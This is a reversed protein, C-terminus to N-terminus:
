RRPFYLLFVTIFRIIPPLLSNSFIANTVPAFLPMPNSVARWSAALPMVTNSARAVFLATEFGGLRQFFFAEVNLKKLQVYVVRGCSLAAFNMASLNPLSSMRILLAPTARSKWTGRRFARRFLPTLCEFRVQEAQNRQRLFQQRQDFLAIGPSRLSSCCDRSRAQVAGSNTM